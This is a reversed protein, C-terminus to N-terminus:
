INFQAAVSRPVLSINLEQAKSVITPLMFIAGPISVIGAFTMAKGLEVAKKNASTIENITATGTSAKQYTKMVEQSNAYEAEFVKQVKECVVKMEDSTKPVSTYFDTMSQIFEQPTKPTTFM